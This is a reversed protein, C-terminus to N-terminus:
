RRIVKKRKENSLKALEAIKEVSPLEIKEVVEWSERLYRLPKATTAVANSHYWQQDIPNWLAMMLIPADASGWRQPNYMLWYNNSYRIEHAPPIGWGKEEAEKIFDVWQDLSLRPM